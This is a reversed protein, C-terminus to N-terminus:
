SKKRVLIIIGATSTHYKAIFTLAQLIRGKPNQKIPPLINENVYTEAATNLQYVAFPKEIHPYVGYSTITLEPIKSIKLKLYKFQLSTHLFLWLKALASQQCDTKILVAMPKNEIERAIKRAMTRATSIFGHRKLTLIKSDFLTELSSLDAIDSSTNVKNKYM